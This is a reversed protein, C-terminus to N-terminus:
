MAAAANIAETTAYTASNTALMAVMLEHFATGVASAAQYIGGHTAFSAAMLASTPDVAPPLVGTIPAAAAANGATVSSGIGQLGGAAAVMAAPDTSVFM